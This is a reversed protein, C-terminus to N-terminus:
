ISVKEVEYGDDSITVVFYIGKGMNPCQYYIIGNGFIDDAKYSNNHGNLCFGKRSDMGPFQSIYHNFPKAVNNNFQEDTPRSHMVVVTHDILGDDSTQHEITTLLDEEIFNLDPVPNSYDYELAVTNLPLFHTGAVNFSFNQPGFIYNFTSEGNGLCDHNGIVAVYPLESAQMADRSWIFEKTLGFDSHDGGHIIFSIDGRRKIQSIATETEDVSGQTDTIFAFKYPRTLPLAEIKAANVANVRTPGDIRSSYPHYEFADCSPM